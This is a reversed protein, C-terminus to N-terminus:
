CVADACQDARDRQFVAVVAHHYRRVQGAQRRSGLREMDVFIRIGTRAHFAALLNGSQHRAAM